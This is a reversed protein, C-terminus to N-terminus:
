FKSCGTFYECAKGADRDGKIEGAAAGEIPFEILVRSLEVSNVSAQGYISFVELIDSQGMSSGTARTSLNAKFANSVTNDKNAYYKKISM